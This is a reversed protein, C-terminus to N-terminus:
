PLRMSGTRNLGSEDLLAAEGFNLDELEVWRSGFGWLLIIKFDVKAPGSCADTIEVKFEFHKVKYWARKGVYMSRIEQREEPNLYKKKM